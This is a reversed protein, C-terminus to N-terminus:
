NKSETELHSPDSGKNEILDITNYDLAKSYYPKWSIVREIDYVASIKIPTMLSPVKYTCIPFLTNLAKITLLYVSHIQVSQISPYPRLSSQYKPFPFSLILNNPHSKKEHALIKTKFTKSLIKETETSKKNDSYLFTIRSYLSIQLYNIQISSKSNDIELELKGTSAVSFEEENNIMRMICVNRQRSCISEFEACNEHFNKIKKLVPDQRILVKTKYSVKENKIYTYAELNYTIACYDKNKRYEFSGPLELPIQFKFPISHIGARIPKAFECVDFNIQRIHNKETIKDKKTIYKEITEKGVFKLSLTNLKFRQNIFLHITGILDEGVLYTSNDLDIRISLVKSDKALSAGM